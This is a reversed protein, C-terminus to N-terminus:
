LDTNTREIERKRELIEGEGQNVFEVFEVQTRSVVQAVWVCGREGASLSLERVVYTHLDDWGSGLIGLSPLISEESFQFM